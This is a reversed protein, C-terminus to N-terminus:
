LEAVQEERDHVDSPVEVDVRLGREPDRARLEAGAELLDFGLGRRLSAVERRHREVLEVDEPVRGLILGLVLDLLSGPTTQVGAVGAVGAVRASGSAPSATAHTLD